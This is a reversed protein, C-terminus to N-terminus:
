DDSGDRVIERVTATGLAWVADLVKLELPGLQARLSADSFSLLEEMARILRLMGEASM